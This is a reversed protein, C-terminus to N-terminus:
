NSTQPQEIKAKHNSSNRVNTLYNKYDHTLIFKRFTRLKNKQHPDKGEDNHIESVWTQREIDLLRQRIYNM